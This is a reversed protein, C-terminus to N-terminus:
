QRNQELLLRCVINCPSQLESTHEESRENDARLLEAIDASVQPASYASELVAHLVRRGVLMGLASGRGLGLQAAAGDLALDLVLGLGSPDEAPDPHRSGDRSRKQAIREGMTNSTPNESSITIATTASMTMPGSRSGRTARVM